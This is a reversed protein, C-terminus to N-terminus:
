HSFPAALCSPSVSLIVPLRTLQCSSTLSCILGADSLSHSVCLCSHAHSHKSCGLYPQSVKYYEAFDVSAAKSKGTISAGGTVELMWTAPNEGPSIPHVGPVVELYEILASSETGLPGSYILQVRVASITM